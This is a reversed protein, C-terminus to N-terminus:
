QRYSVRMARLSRTISKLTKSLVEIQANRLCNKMEAYTRDRANTNGDDDGRGWDQNKTDPKGYETGQVVTLLTQEDPILATIRAAWVIASRWCTFSELRTRKDSLKHKELTEWSVNYIQVNWMM